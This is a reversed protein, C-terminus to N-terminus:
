RMKLVPTCEGTNIGPPAMGVEIRVARTSNDNTVKAHRESPRGGVPGRTTTVGCPRSCVTRREGSIGAEPSVRSMEDTMTFAVVLGTSTVLRVHPNSMSDDSANTLEYRWQAAYLM